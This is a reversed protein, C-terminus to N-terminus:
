TSGTTSFLYTKTQLLEPTLAVGTLRETLAFAARIRHAPDTSTAFGVAEILPQLEAARSGSPRRDLAPDFDLETVGREMLVFRGAGTAARYNGVLTTDTALARLLEDARGLTGNDEIVLAWDGVRAVGFYYRDAPGRQGDGAGVLQHWGIRELEKAGMRDLVQQSTRDHVWGFFFGKRLDAEDDFWRYDDAVAARAAVSSPPASPSSSSPAPTGTRPGCGALLGGAALGLFM